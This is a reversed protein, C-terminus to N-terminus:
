LRPYFRYHVHGQEAALAKFYLTPPAQEDTTPGLGPTKSEEILACDCPSCEIVQCLQLTVAGLANQEEELKEITM